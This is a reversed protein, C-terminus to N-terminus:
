GDDYDGGLNEDVVMDLTLKRFCYSLHFMMTTLMMMMGKMIVMAMMTSSKITVNQIIIIQM